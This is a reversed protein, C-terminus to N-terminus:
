SKDKQKLYFIILARAYWQTLKQLFQINLHLVFPDKLCQHQAGDQRDQLNYIILTCHHFEVQLMHRWLDAPVGEFDM